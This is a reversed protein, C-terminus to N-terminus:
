QVPKKLGKNYLEIAEQYNGKEYEAIGLHKYKSKSEATVVRVMSWVVLGILVVLVIGTM